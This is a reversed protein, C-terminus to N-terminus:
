RPFPILGGFLVPVRSDFFPDPYPVPDVIFVATAMNMKGSSFRKGIRIKKPEYRM